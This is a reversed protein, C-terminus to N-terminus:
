SRSPCSVDSPWVDDAAPGGALLLQSAKRGALDSRCRGGAHLVAGESGGGIIEDTPPQEFDGWRNDMTPILESEWMGDMPLTHVEAPQKKARSETDIRPNGPSFVILSSRPPAVPIQLVTGEDTQRLVPLERVSGTWADWLEVKGKARFSCEDGVPVDMVMYVDRFGVRRHLAKGQGSPSIFDRSIARTVVSPLDDVNGVLLGLGGAPNRQPVAAGKARRDATTVGFLEKVIKDVEPDDSGARDSAGPLTGVALVIGGARFLM